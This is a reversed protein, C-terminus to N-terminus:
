YDLECKIDDDSLIFTWNMIAEKWAFGLNCIMNSLKIGTYNKYKNWVKEIFKCNKDNIVIM